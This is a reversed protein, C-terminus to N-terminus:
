SSSYGRSIGQERRISRVLQVSMTYTIIFMFTYVFMMYCLVQIIVILIKTSIYDNNDYVKNKESELVDMQSMNTNLFETINTFLIM